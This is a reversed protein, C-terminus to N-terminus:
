LLREGYGAMLDAKTMTEAVDRTLNEDVALAYEVWAAKAANGYPRQPEPKEDEPAEDDPGPGGHNDPRDDPDQIVPHETDPIERVAEAEDKYCAFGQAVYEANLDDGFDRIDGPAVPRSPRGALFYNRVVITTM